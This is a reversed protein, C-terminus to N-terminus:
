RRELNPILAPRDPGQNEDPKKANGNSAEGQGAGADRRQRDQDPDSGPGDANADKLHHEREPQAPLDGPLPQQRQRANEGHDESHHRNSVRLPAGATTSKYGRHRRRRRQGAASRRPTAAGRVSCAHLPAIRTPPPSSPFRPLPLLSLFAPVCCRWTGAERRM